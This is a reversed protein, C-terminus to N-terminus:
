TINIDSIIETKYLMVHVLSECHLIYTIYQYIRRNSEDQIVRREVERVFTLSLGHVQPSTGCMVCM